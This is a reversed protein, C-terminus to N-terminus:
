NLQICGSYPAYIASGAKAMSMFRLCELAMDYAQMVKALSPDSRLRDLEAETVNKETTSLWDHPFNSSGVGDASALTTLVTLLALTREDFGSVAQCVPERMEALRDAATDLDNSAEYRCVMPGDEM